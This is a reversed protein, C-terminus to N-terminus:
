EREQLVSAVVVHVLYCWFTRLPGSHSLGLEILGCLCLLHQYCEHEIPVIDPGSTAPNGSCKYMEPNRPRNSSQVRCDSAHYYYQILMNSCCIKMHWVGNSNM